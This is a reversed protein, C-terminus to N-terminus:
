PKEGTDQAEEKPPEVHNNSLVQVLKSTPQAFYNFMRIQIAEMDGLQALQALQETAMMRAPLEDTGAGIPYHGDKRVYFRDILGKPTGDILLDVRFIRYEHNNLVMLMDQDQLRLSVKSGTKRGIVINADQVVDFLDTKAHLWSKARHKWIMREIWKSFDEKFNNM